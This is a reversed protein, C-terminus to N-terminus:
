HPETAGATGIRGYKQIHRQRTNHDCVATITFTFLNQKRSTLGIGTQV